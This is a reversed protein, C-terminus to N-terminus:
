RGSVDSFEHVSGKRGHPLTQQKMALRSRINKWISAALNNDNVSSSNAFIM